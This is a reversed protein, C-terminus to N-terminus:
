LENYKLELLNYLHDKEIIQNQLAKINLDIIENVVNGKEMELKDLSNEDEM